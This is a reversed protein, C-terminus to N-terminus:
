KMLSLIIQIRLCVRIVSWPLIPFFYHKGQKEQQMPEGCLMLPRDSLMKNVESRAKKSGMVVFCSNELIYDFLKTEALDEMKDNGCQAYYVSEALRVVDDQFLGQGM